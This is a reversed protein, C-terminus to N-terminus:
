STKLEQLAIRILEDATRQADNGRTQPDIYHDVFRAVDNGRQDSEDGTQQARKIAKLMHHMETPSEPHLGIRNKYIYAEASLPNRKILTELDICWRPFIVPKGLAWAEFVMTGFDSVVVDAWVLQDSTPVKSKRNRPHVSIQYDYKRRMTWKHKHFRPFSSPTAEATEPNKGKAAVMNHTPAWLVRLKKTPTSPTSASKSILPDLRLWGVKRIQDDRLRIQYIPNRRFRGEVLRNVHWAGPVFIYKYQNVLPRDTESERIFFYRKDAIGHAMVIDAPTRVKLEERGQRIFLSLSVADAVADGVTHVVTKPPLCDELLSFIQEQVGAYTKGPLWVFNISGPPLTPPNTM